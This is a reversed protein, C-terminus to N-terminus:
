SRDALRLRVFLWPAGLGSWLGVLAYRLFGYIQDPELGYFAKRLGLWLTFLVPVAILFRLVRKWWMGGSEFRVWRRELAFGVGMGMLTAGTIIGYKGNSPFLVIMLLPVLLGACIQWALGRKMLWAEVVPELRLYVLLLAAGLLYGGLLDTPFHLGLYLRSIPIFLMLIGALIWPGVRRLHSALYGWVVVANQTHGSPFGGGGAKYLQLVQPDYQYPRPQATLVKAVTNLYASFLFLITLRAGVRRNLCWYVLPLLLMFFPQDGMFTFAKFPVDLGPSFQQFWLVVRIGWDLISEM